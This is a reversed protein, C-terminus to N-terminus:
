RKAFSDLIPCELLSNGTGLIQYTEYEHRQDSGQCCAPRCFVASEITLGSVFISHRSNVGVVLGVRLLEDEQKGGTSTTETDVQSRGINDYEEVTIPIHQRDTTQRLSLLPDLM